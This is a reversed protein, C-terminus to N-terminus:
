LCLHRRPALLLRRPLSHASSTFSMFLSKCNSLKATQEGTCNKAIIADGQYGRACTECHDGATNRLCSICAGTALDCPDSILPDANGNCNCLLCPLASGAAAHLIHYPTHPISYPVHLISCPTHPISYGTTSTFHANGTVEGTPDGVYGDACLQCRDGEHGERCGECRVGGGM